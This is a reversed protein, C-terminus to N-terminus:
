IHPYILKGSYEILVAKVDTVERFVDLFKQPDITKTEFCGYHSPIVIKPKVIESFTLADEPKRGTFDGFIPFIAIDPKLMAVKDLIIHPNEVVGSSSDGMNYLKVFNFDFLYGLHTTIKYEKGQYVVKGNPPISYLATVNFDSFAYNKDGELVKIKNEPIGMKLFHSYSEMPGLFITNPSNKAIWPLTDPDIHDLHDHTCFVYDVIVDKPQVPPEPYIFTHRPNNRSFYPDIAILTGEPTKLIFSNQGLWFIALEGNGVETNIITEFMNTM